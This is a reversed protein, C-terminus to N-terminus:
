FLFRETRFEFVYDPNILNILENSYMNKVFYIENFLDFYLPLCHLMFSDMFVLVKLNVKDNNQVKIIYSSVINWDTTRNVLNETDDTLDYKLFKINCNNNILYNPYFWTMEDHFHFNDLKSSLTKDGLNSEWTLDGIGLGLLSLECNVVNLNLERPVINLNLRSNIVNIAYKYLIYNGKLNIHTDTKYYVDHENKIADYFDVIKNDLVRKYIDLNPRYKVIYENPLYDKCMVSKDPYVFMIFKEFSYRSLTLDQVTVLNECHVCLDNCSDNILFLYGDKGILTKSM